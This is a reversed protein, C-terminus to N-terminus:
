DAGNEAPSNKFQMSYLKQYLGDQRVLEDHTGEEVIEGKDLVLIRDANLVTSLRHAIVFTTRNEMLNNLASQVMQESETDLASTAEDLILIPANKLLARAICIRQRQGGSLRVGRDGINTGYGEPMESIFDHAFAARAAAQVEVDSAGPKGYRINNALTDNFLTTEQDVLAVQSMLSEGRISRVDHGDVQVEGDTVDYFRPILSVLTTKGGGSPGVLAVIDGRRASLTINRLVWADGFRFSVDRFDVDGQVRELPLADTADVIEPKQDIVEFVRVAAGLCRQFDNYSGILKKIPSYVLAMATIFSFFDAATMQGSMVKIGGFWVVAAIGLSTIFEMIPSSLNSYKISKRMFSYYGLNTAKFKDISRQELSFAKIVKIGSFTEQLISAIDGMKEQSQRSISKLRKGIKQAPYVTLPIVLFSIIALQWNRYFIVGLLATAAIGDRFIGVIISIMGEQMVTVDNLVRSMLTGTTQSGFFRLGMLMNRGYLQNRIDQVVLQTATRMYFDNLYRCLGRMTFIAVIGLPLFRFITLDRSQFIEKLLPSIYYAFAGDMGGVAASALAAIVIRWWYPKTYQILRTFTNTTEM